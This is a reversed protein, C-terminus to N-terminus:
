HTLALICDCRGINGCFRWRITRDGARALRASSRGGVSRPRWDRHTGSQSILNELSSSVGYIWTEDTGYVVISSANPTPAISPDFIDFAPPKDFDLVVTASNPLKQQTDLFRIVFGTEFTSRRLPKPLMHSELASEDCEWILKGDREELILGVANLARLRAEEARLGYDLRAAKEPSTPKDRGDRIQAVQHQVSQPSADALARFIRKFVEVDVTCAPVRPERRAGRRRFVSIDYAPISATPQDTEVMEMGAHRGAVLTGSAAKM